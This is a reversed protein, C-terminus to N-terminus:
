VTTENFTITNSEFAPMGIEENSNETEAMM